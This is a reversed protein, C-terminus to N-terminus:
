FAVRRGDPAWAPQAGATIRRLATRDSRIRYIVPGATPLYRTFAIWKGNPSWSPDDDPAPDRTVRREGTGLRSITWIDGDRVFAIRGNKGPFAGEATPALLALTLLAFAALTALRM